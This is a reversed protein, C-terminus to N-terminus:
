ALFFWWRDFPTHGQTFYVLHFAGIMDWARIHFFPCRIDELSHVHSLFGDDVSFLIGRCLPWGIIFSKSIAIGWHLSMGYSGTWWLWFARSDIELIAWMLAILCLTHHWPRPTTKLCPVYRLSLHYPSLFSPFSPGFVWHDFGMGEHIFHLMYLFYRSGHVQLHRSYVHYCHHHLSSFDFEHRSTYHHHSSPISGSFSTVTLVSYPTFYFHHILLSVLIIIFCLIRSCTIIQEFWIHFSTM